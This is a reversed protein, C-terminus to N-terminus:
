KEIEDLFGELMLDKTSELYKFIESACESKYKYSKRGYVENFISLEARDSYIYLYSPMLTKFSYGYSGESYKTWKVKNTKTNNLINCITNEVRDDTSLKQKASISCLGCNITMFLIAFFLIYKM